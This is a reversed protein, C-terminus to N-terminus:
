NHANPHSGVRGSGDGPDLSSIAAMEADTLEFGFVDFNAAIRERNSSKPFLIFGQQLHWRIVAQAPSVGHAAATATVEPRELLPYKGQGLPGWSEIKTGHAAVWDQVDQQHYAPHLEIQDVAPTVGTAAVIADLHEPLHNSVGISRTLGTDRFGVLKEWAHVYTGREPAPWHVLYLDVYDLGLRELSAHIAADPRDGAQDDNYLKTTVFLENRPIGSAAIARGVGEENGYISATDIHRYGVELAETVIRETEDQPLKFVGFGLQPISYGDNLEISKVGM